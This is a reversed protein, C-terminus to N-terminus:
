NIIITSTVNLRKILLMLWINTESVSLGEKRLKSIGVGGNKELYVFKFRKNTRLDNFEESEEM